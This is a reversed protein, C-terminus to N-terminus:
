AGAEKRALIPKVQPKTMSLTTSFFGGCEEKAACADCAAPFRIKEPSISKRCIGWYGTDVACLPFNYISTNIGAEILADIAGKMAEFAERHGIYVEKFNKACNGRTELGIFNVTHVTPYYRIILDAIGSLAAQNLRTVVIRIEVAIGAALLDRIGRDTQEFSGPARTIRDHLEPTDGHLPIAACLYPPCYAILKDFFSSVSLSRGNTLLLTEIHPFRDTLKRMVKLFLRPRLTPEGGTVVVHSVDAPLMDIYALLRADPLGSDMQRERDSTPCMICNSNCNGTMFVTADHEENSYLRYGRGRKDITLIDGTSLREPSKVSGLRTAYGDDGLLVIDGDLSVRALRFGGEYGEIFLNM